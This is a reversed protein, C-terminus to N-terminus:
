NHERNNQNVYIALQGTLIALQNELIEVRKELERSSQRKRERQGRTSYLKSLGSSEYRELLQPINQNDIGVQTSVLIEGDETIRRDTITKMGDLANPGIVYGTLEKIIIKSERLWRYFTNQNLEYVRKVEILKM